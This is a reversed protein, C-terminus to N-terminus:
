YEFM